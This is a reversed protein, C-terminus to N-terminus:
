RSGGRLVQIRLGLLPGSWDVECAPNVGPATQGLWSAWVLDSVARWLATCCGGCVRAGSKAAVEAAVMAKLNALLVCMEDDVQARVQM